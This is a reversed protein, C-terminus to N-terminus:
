WCNYLDNFFQRWDRKVEGGLVICFSKMM